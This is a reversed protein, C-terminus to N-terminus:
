IRRCKPGIMKMMSIFALVIPILSVLGYRWDYVFMIILMGIPTAVAAAMDPLNHALYTEAAASSDNVIKRLKGSGFDESFHVPLLRIHELLAKRINGAIRFASKHACMLGAFYILMSLLAFVVAWIGNSVIYKANNFHPAVAIAEEIINYIMILPLLAILSSIFSLIFSLYTLVKHGGAYDMLRQFGSPKKEKMIIM